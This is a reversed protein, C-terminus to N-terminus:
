RRLRPLGVVGFETLKPFARAAETYFSHDLAYRGTLFIVLVELQSFDLLPRLHISRVTVTDTQSIGDQHVTGVYLSALTDVSFQRRLGAFIRPVDDQEITGKVLLEVSKVNPFSAVTSLTVYDEANTTLTLDHLSPFASGSHPTPSWALSAPLWIALDALDPLQGLVQFLSEDVPLRNCCFSRIGPISQLTALLSPSLDPSTHVDKFSIDLKQLCTFTNMMTSLSAQLYHKPEDPPLTWREIVITRLRSGVFSLIIPLHQASFRCERWCLYTLAPLIVPDPRSAVM